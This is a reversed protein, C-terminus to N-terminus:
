RQRNALCWTDTQKLNDFPKPMELHPSGCPL